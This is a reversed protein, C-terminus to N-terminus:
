CQNTIKRTMLSSRMVQFLTILPSLLNMEGLPMWGHHPSSCGKSRSVMSPTVSELTQRCRSSFAANQINTFTQLHSGTHLACARRMSRFLQTQITKSVKFFVEHTKESMFTLRDYDPLSWFNSADQSFIIHEQQCPVKDFACHPIYSLRPLSSNSLAFSSLGLAAGTDAKLQMPNSFLM